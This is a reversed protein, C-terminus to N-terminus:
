GDGATRRLGRSGLLKEVAFLLLLLGSLPIALYSYGVAIQLAPMTQGMTEGALAFGFIVMLAAFAAVAADAGLRLWAARSAGIKKLFLEIGIHLRERYAAAAGFFGFYIMLLLATEESWAYTRNMVYRLFVQLSIIFVMAVLCGGAVLLSLVHLAKTIKRFVAM